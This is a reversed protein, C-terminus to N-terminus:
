QPSYGQTFARGNWVQLLKPDTQLKQINMQILGKKKLFM